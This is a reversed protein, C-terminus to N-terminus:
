GSELLVYFCCYQEGEDGVLFVKFFLDGFIVLQELDGFVIGVVWQQVFQFLYFWVFDVDYVGVVVVVVQFGDFQSFVMFLFLVGFGVYM